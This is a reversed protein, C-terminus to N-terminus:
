NAPKALEAVMAHVAAIQTGIRTPFTQRLGQMKGDYGWWDWCGMPNGRSVTVQPYLVILRNTDAWENFGLRDYVQNGVAPNAAGQLCGHFVVHVACRARAARCDAPVFLYGTDSFGSGDPAFARQDFPLPSSSLSTARANLRRGLVHELIARPQDYPVGAVPCRSIFPVAPQAACDDGLDDSLFAHGAKIDGVYALRSAPVRLLRYLARTAEMTASSVVADAGGHFLYIRQRAVNAPSDILGLKRYQKVLDLFHQAEVNQGRMCEGARVVARPGGALPAGFAACGYPGGAVIGAGITSKSFAVAYQMAMFGGSSLGSVSIGDADAGFHPLAVPQAAAPQAPAAPQALVPPAAIRPAGLCAFLLLVAAILRRM